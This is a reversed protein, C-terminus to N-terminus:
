PKVEQSRIAAAIAELVKVVDSLYMRKEFVAVGQEREAARAAIKIEAVDKERQERAAEEAVAGLLAAISQAFTVDMEKHSHQPLCWLQAAREAYRDTNSM